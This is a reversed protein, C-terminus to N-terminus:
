SLAPDGTPTPLFRYGVSRVTEIVHPNSADDGLARRLTRIHVDVVREDVYDDDKWVAHLLQRRSLVQGPSSAFALLLDFDLATPNASGQATTVRRRGVDIALMDFRLVHEAAPGGPQTPRDLRRLIARLRAALERGGFPKTVYDDAGTTLGLVKDIEDERATLLVVPVNSTLRIRRLVELGNLVPMVVDLVIMHPQYDALAALAATGDAAERINFGDAELYRRVLDRIKPEDDVVLVRVPLTYEEDIV